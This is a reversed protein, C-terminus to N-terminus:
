FNGNTTVNACDAQYATEAKKCFQQIEISDLVQPARSFITGYCRSKEKPDDLLRCFSIARDQGNPDWFFDQVAGAICDERYIEDKVNGCFEIAVEPVRGSAGGVDRGMSQFCSRQHEVPAQSCAKAIKSFDGNFLTIMRSTQYFYCSNKYKEDVINCPFHPDDSLYKTYHGESQALGGIINEMYVGTYCSPLRTELLDCNQLADFIEYDAWAMLGHGIGHICQHSLFPNLESDCIVSLDEALNETGHERFFNETAGHYCGSHCEAGCTQFAGAGELVYAYNGVDHAAQHCDGFNSQLEHLRATTKAPGFNRAYSYLQSQNNFDIIAGEQMGEIYTIDEPALTLEPKGSLLALVKAFINSFFSKISDFISEEGDDELLKGDEVTITGKIQPAAHNHYRWQGVENFTFEYIEGVEMVHCVDFISESEKTECKKIDSGPYSRHTPHINSAPWHAGGINEFIVKVGRSITVEQPSYGSEDMHIVVSEVGDVSHGLASQTPILVILTLTITIGIHMYNNSKM